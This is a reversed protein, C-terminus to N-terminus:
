LRNRQARSTGAGQGQQRLGGDLVVSALPEALHRLVGVPLPFSTVPMSTVGTLLDSMWGSFGSSLVITCYSNDM